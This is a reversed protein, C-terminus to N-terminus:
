FKNGNRRRKNRQKINAEIEQLRQWIKDRHNQLNATDAIGLSRKLMIDYPIEKYQFITKYPLKNNRAMIPLLLFWLIYILRDASM